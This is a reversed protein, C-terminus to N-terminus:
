RVSRTRDVLALRLTERNGRLSSGHMCPTESGAPGAWGEGYRHPCHQKGLLLLGDAGPTNGKIEPSLVWGARVGTLAENVGNGTGMCSEPGTHNALGEGHSEKMGLEEGTKM